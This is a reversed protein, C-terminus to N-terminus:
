IGDETIITLIFSIKDVTHRDQPRRILNAKSCFSPLIGTTYAQHLEKLVAIFCPYLHESSDACTLSHNLFAIKLHYGKLFWRTYFKLVKFCKRHKDSMSNIVHGIEAMCNSIRWTGLRSSNACVKPVIFCDHQLMEEYINSKFLELAPVFDIHIPLYKLRHTKKPDINEPCELKLAYSTWRLKIPMYNIASSTDFQLKGTKAYVTCKNCGTRTMAKACMCPFTSGDKGACSCQRLSLMVASVEEEFMDSFAEYDTLKQRGKFCSFETLHEKRIISGLVEACM